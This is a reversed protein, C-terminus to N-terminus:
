SGSVLESLELWRLEKNQLSDSISSFRTSLQQIRDYSNAENHLEETIKEKERNLDSIEKELLELEKKEKFTPKPKNTTAAQVQKEAPVAEASRTEPIETADRTKLWEQYLGYNGPFDRIV